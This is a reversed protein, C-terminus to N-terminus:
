NKWLEYTFKMKEDWIEIALIGRYSNYFDWGKGREGLNKRCWKILEAKNIKRYETDIEYLNKGMSRHTYSRDEKM